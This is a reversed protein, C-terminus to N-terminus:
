IVNAKRPRSIAPPSFRCLRGYAERDTPYALVEFGDVTVLRTGVLLKINRNKRKTM